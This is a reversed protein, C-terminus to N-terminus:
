QLLNGMPINQNVLLFRNYLDALLPLVVVMMMFIKGTSPPLLWQPPKDLKRFAVGRLCAVVILSQLWAAALLSWHALVAGQPSLTLPMYQRIWKVAQGMEVVPPLFSLVWRAADSFLVVAALTITLFLLKPFFRGSPLFLIGVGLAISVLFYLSLISLDLAVASLLSLSEANFIVPWSLGAALPLGPSYPSFKMILYVAQLTSNELGGALSALGLAAMRYGTFTWVLGTIFAALGVWSLLLSPRFFQTGTRLLGVMRSFLYWLMLGLWALAIGEVVLPRFVLQGTFIEMGRGGAWVVLLLVALKFCRAGPATRPYSAVPKETKKQETQASTQPELKQVSTAETSM